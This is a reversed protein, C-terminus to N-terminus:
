MLTFRINYKITGAMNQSFSYLVFIHEYHTYSIYYSGTCGTSKEKDCYTFNQTILTDFLFANYM